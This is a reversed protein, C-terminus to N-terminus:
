RGTAQATNIASSLSTNLSGVANTFGPPLSSGNLTVLVPLLRELDNQLVVLDRVVDNATVPTGFANTAVVPGGFGPQLGLPNNVGTPTPVIATQSPASIATSFTGGVPTSAPTTSANQSALTSFDTSTRTSLNQGSVPVPVSAGGTTSSVLAVHLAPFAVNDNFNALLPLIQQIDNQLAAMGTNLSTPVVNTSRLVSSFVNDFGPFVPSLNSAGPSVSNGTMQQASAPITAITLATLLFLKTKM